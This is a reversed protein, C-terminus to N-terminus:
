LTVAVNSNGRVDIGAFGGGGFANQQVGPNVVFDTVHV